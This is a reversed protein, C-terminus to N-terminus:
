SHPATSAVDKTMHLGTHQRGMQLLIYGLGGRGATLTNRATARLRTHVQKLWFLSVAGQTGTIKNQPDASFETGLGHEQLFQEAEKQLINSIQSCTIGWVESYNILQNHLYRHHNVPIHPQM